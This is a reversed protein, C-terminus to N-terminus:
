GGTTQPLGPFWVHFNSGRGVTSDVWIRGGHAVVIGKVIYLGLGLGGKRERARKAQYFRDFLMPLEESSIGIGADSITVTAGGDSAEVAIHIPSGKNSFKAANDLLNTMVQDFRMPDAFVTTPSGTTRIELPHEGLAPGVQEALKEVADPLSLRKRDLLLRGLEIRGVDLLDHILVDVRAVTRRMRELEAVPVAISDDARRRLMQEVQM